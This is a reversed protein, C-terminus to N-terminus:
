HLDKYRFMTGLSYTKIALASIPTRQEETIDDFIYERLFYTSIKGLRLLM